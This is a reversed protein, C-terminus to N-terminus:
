STRTLLKLEYGIAEVQDRDLITGEPPRGNLQLVLASQGPQQTFQQRNVPVPVGLLITLIDATSQHGIASDVDGGHQKLLDLADDLTITRREYNGDTTIISTNLLPLAM